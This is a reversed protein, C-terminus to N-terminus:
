VPSHAARHTRSAYVAALQPSNISSVARAVVDNRCRLSVAYRQLEAFAVQPCLQVAASEIRTYLKEAGQPTSIDLDAYKVVVAPGEPPLRSGQAAVAAIPALGILSATLAVKFGIAGKSISHHKVSFM